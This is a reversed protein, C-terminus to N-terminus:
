CVRPHVLYNLLWFLLASDLATWRRSIMRVLLKIIAINNWGRLDLGYERLIGTDAAIVLDNLVSLFDHNKKVIKILNRM